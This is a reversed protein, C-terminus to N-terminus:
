QEEDAKGQAENAEAEVPKSTATSNDTQEATGKSVGDQEREASKNMCPCNIMKNYLLVGSMMVVFGLLQYISFKQWGVALSFVWIMVARLMDLVSRTTASLEKTVSVGTANFCPISLVCGLFCIAVKWSNKIQYFADIPDEICGNPNPFITGGVKIFSMPIILLSLIILGFIGEWGIVTLPSVSRGSILKEETIFLGATFIQGLVVLGDGIYTKKSNGGEAAVGVMDSGGVMGLGVVVISIGLWEYMKLKRGLFIVSFIGTFIIVAGRLMQYSSAYTMTLGIYMVSTGVMDFMGPIMFLFPNCSKGKVLTPLDDEAVNKSSYYCMLVKHIILCLAEGGFMSAAQVFPHKFERVSGDRGMSMAQDTGKTFLVNMTGFFVLLFVLVIQYSTFAM